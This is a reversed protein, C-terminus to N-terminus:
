VDEWELLNVITTVVPPGVNYPVLGSPTFSIEDTTVPEIEGMLTGPIYELVCIGEANNINNFGITIAKGNLSISQGVWETDANDTLWFAGENGSVDYVNEDFVVEVFYGHDGLGNDVTDASVFVPSLGYLFSSSVDVTVSINEEGDQSDEYIVAVDESIVDMDMEVYHVHAWGSQQMKTFSQHLAGDADEIQCIVRWDFTRDVHVNVASATTAVAIPLNVQATWGDKTTYQMYYVNGSLVYFILLGQDFDKFFSAAGRISDVATVNTPVLVEYTTGVVGGMLAGTDTIYFLWPLPDTMFDIAGPATKSKAFTGDFTMSCQTCGPITEITTWEMDAVKALNLDASQITLLGNQDVYAIFVMEPNVYNNKVAIAVSDSVVDTAVLDWEWRRWYNIPVVKVPDAYILVDKLYVNKGPDYESGQNNLPM